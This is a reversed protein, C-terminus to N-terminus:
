HHASEDRQAETKATDTAKPTYHIALREIALGNVAEVRFKVGSLTVEDGVQAPLRLQGIVLGGVSDVDLDDDEIEFYEDLEDLRVTGHVVLHGPAVEVLHEPEDVDFEDRVEGMVEEILDELTVVGATGGYEDIVVAMHIHRKKLLALLKDASTGEPVVPAERLLKRLDFPQAQKNLQQNVVDKLHLVGVINDISQDYIPFRTHPANVIKALLEEESITIPFAELKTRPTMIQGVRLESFDFINSFLEHEEAEILGGVVSESIILELEDATHLRSDKPPPPVRMLRLTLLGIKNLVTILVSFLTQTFLMPAVLTFIMREANQLALAKPIMEGLVVHLYTVVGLALFLSITHVIDGDLGFQDHLIPEVFHAIAPEGVMGLGLSAFTIGLQATAIYRDTLASSHLIKYLRKAVANGEEALQEIRTPRVGIIAFEAAVFMGNIAILGLILAFAAFTDM